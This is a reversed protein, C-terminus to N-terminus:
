EEPSATAADELVYTPLGDLSVQNKEKWYNEMGERVDGLEAKSDIWKNMNEREGLYDFLPVGFGCSTLVMQIDFDVFQRAAPNPNFLADLEPWQSDRPHVSVAKGYLRLIRPRGEFACFMMTLRGNQALHAATENGSGTMNLWVIRNPSLVRLTDWGKPSVNITGNDAATGVFYIKQQEVFATLREDLTSCTKSM